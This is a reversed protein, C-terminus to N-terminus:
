NIDFRGQASANIPPAKRGKKPLPDALSAITTLLRRRDDGSAWNILEIKQHEAAQLASTLLSEAQSSASYILRGVTQEEGYSIRAQEITLASLAVDKVARIGTASESCADVTEIVHMAGNKLVFDAVLGTGLEVNSVVRHASLDEDRQALV